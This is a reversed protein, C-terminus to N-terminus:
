LYLKFISSKHYYFILNKITPIDLPLNLILCNNLTPHLYRREFKISRINSHSSYFFQIPICEEKNHLNINIGINQLDM